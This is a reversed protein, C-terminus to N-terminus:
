GVLSYKPSYNEYIFKLALHTQLKFMPDCRERGKSHHYHGSSPYGKEDGMKNKDQEYLHM